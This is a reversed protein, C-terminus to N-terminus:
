SGGLRADVKGGSQSVKQIKRARRKADRVKKAVLEFHFPLRAPLSDLDIVDDAQRSARRSWSRSLM